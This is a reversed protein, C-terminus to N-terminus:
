VVDDAVGGAVSPKEHWTTPKIDNRSENLDLPEVEGMVRSVDANSVPRTSNDEVTQRTSVTQGQNEAERYMQLRRAHFAM